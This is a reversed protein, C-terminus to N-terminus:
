NKRWNRIYEIIENQLEFMRGFIIVGLISWCIGFINAPTFEVEFVFVLLLIISILITDIILEKKTLKLNHRRGM